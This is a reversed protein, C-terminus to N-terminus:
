EVEVHDIEKGENELDIIAFQMDWEDGRVIAVDEYQDDHYFIVYEKDIKPLQGNSEHYIEDAFM